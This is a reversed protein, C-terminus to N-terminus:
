DESHEPLEDRGVGLRRLHLAPLQDDEFGERRRPQAAQAEPLLDGADGLDEDVVVRLVSDPRDPAVALVVADRDDRRLAVALAQDRVLVVGHGEHVPVAGPAPAPLGGVARVDDVQVGVPRRDREQVGGHLRHVLPAHQQHRARVRRHQAAGVGLAAVGLVPDDRALGLIAVLHRHANDQPVNLLYGDRSPTM